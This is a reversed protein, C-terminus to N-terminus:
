PSSKTHIELSFCNTSPPMPWLPPLLPPGLCCSPPAGLSSLWSSLWSSLLLKGLPMVAKCVQRYTPEQKRPVVCALLLSRQQYFWCSHTQKRFGWFALSSDQLCFGSLLWPVTCSLRIRSFPSFHNSLYLWSVSVLGWTSLCINLSSSPVLSITSHLGPRAQGPPESGLHKGVGLGRPGPNPSLEKNAAEPKFM